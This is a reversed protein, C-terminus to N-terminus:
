RIILGGGKKERRASDSVVEGLAEAEAEFVGTEVMEEFDVFIGGLKRGRGRGVVVVVVANVGGGGSVSGGGNRRDSFIRRGSRLM